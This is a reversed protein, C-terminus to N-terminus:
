KIQCHHLPLLIITLKLFASSLGLIVAEQLEKKQWKRPWRHRITSRFSLRLGILIM